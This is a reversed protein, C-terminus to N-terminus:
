RTDENVIQGKLKLINCQSFGKYKHSITSRPTVANSLHFASKDLSCMKVRASKEQGQGMLSM